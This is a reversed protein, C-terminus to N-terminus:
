KGGGKIGTSERICLTLDILADKMEKFSKDMRILVFLAVFVPFGVSKVFDAWSAPSDM